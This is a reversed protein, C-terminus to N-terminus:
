DEDLVLADGQALRARQLGAPGSVFRAVVFHGAMRAPDRGQKALDQVQKGTLGLSPGVRFFPVINVYTLIQSQRVSIVKWRAVMRRGLNAGPHAALVRHRAAQARPAWFGRHARRAIKEFQMLHHWCLQPLEPWGPALGAEVLGGQLWFAPAAGHKETVFLYIPQIGWRDPPAAPTYSLTESLVAQELVSKLAARRGPELADPWVIGALRFHRGDPATLTGDLAVSALDLPTAAEPTCLLPMAGAPAASLGVLLLIFIQTFGQFLPTGDAGYIQYRSSVTGYSLLISRCNGLSYTAPELGAPIALKILSGNTGVQQM